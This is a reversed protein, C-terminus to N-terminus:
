FKNNSYILKTTNNINSVDIIYQLAVSMKHAQSPSQSNIAPLLKKEIFYKKFNKHKEIETITQPAITDDLIIELMKRTHCDIGWVPREEIGNGLTLPPTKLINTENCIRDQIQGIMMDVIGELQTRIIDDDSAIANDDNLCSIAKTDTNDVNRFCLMWDETLEQDEVNLAPGLFGNLNTNLEEYLNHIEQSDTISSSVVYDTLRTYDRIPYPEKRWRDCFYIFMHMEFCQFIFITYICVKWPFNTRFKKGIIVNIYINTQLVTTIIDYQIYTNVEIKKVQNINGVKSSQM